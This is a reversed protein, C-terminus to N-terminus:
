EEKQPPVAPVEAERDYVAVLAYAGLALLLWLAACAAAPIQHLCAYAFEPRM